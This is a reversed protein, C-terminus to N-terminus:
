RYRPCNEHLLLVGWILIEYVDLRQRFKHIKWTYINKINTEFKFEDWELPDHSM